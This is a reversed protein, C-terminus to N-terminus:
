GGSLPPFLRRKVSSLVGAGDWGRKETGTRKRSVEAQTAVLCTVRVGMPGTHATGGLAAIRKKIQAASQSLRGAMAVIVNALPETPIAVATATVTGSSATRTPGAAPGAAGHSGGGSAGRTAGAPLPFVRPKPKRKRKNIGEVESPIKFASVPPTQTIADCPEWESVNGHCHYGDQTHSAVNLLCTHFVLVTLSMLSSGLRAVAM